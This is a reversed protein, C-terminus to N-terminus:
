GGPAVACGSAAAARRLQADWSVFTVDAALALASALHVADYGRLGLREALQGARVALHGDVGILLLEGYVAEFEERARGHAIAGLRGGRRAAALAARAEPYSLISSAVDLPADWLEAVLDSGAEVIV